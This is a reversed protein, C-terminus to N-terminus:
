TIIQSEASQLFLRLIFLSCRCYRQFSRLSKKAKLSLPAGPPSRAPCRSPGRASPPAGHSRKCVRPGGAERNTGCRRCVGVGTWADSHHASGSGVRVGRSGAPARHARRGGATLPRWEQSRSGGGSPGPTETGPSSPLHTGAETPCTCELAGQPTLHGGLCALERFNQVSARWSTGQVKETPDQPPQTGPDGSVLDSAMTSPAGGRAGPGEEWSAPSPVSLEVGGIVCGEWRAARWFSQCKVIIMSSM